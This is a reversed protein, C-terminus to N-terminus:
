SSVDDCDGEYDLVKISTAPVELTVRKTDGNSTNECSEMPAKINIKYSFPDSARPVLSIVRGEAYRLEQRRELPAKVLRIRTTNPLM